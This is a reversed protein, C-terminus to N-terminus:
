PCTGVGATCVGSALHGPNPVQQAANDTGITQGNFGPSSTLGAAYSATTNGLGTTFGPGSGGAVAAIEDVTLERIAVDRTM